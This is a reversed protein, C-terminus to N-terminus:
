PQAEKAAAYAALVARADDLVRRPFPTDTGVYPLVARLAEALADAHNVAAVIRAADAAVPVIAVAECATDIILWHEDDQVPERLPLTMPQLEM